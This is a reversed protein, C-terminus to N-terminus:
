HTAIGIVGTSFEDCGINGCVQVSNTSTFNPFGFFTSVFFSDDVTETGPGQINHPSNDEVDSLYNDEFGEPPSPVQAVVTMWYAGAELIPCSTIGTVVYTYEVYFNFALRGTATTSVPSTGSCQVKVQGGTPNGGAAAGQVISWTANTASPSPTNQNNVFLGSVSWDTKGKAGKYKKPINFPVYVTGDITLGFFNAVQNWLGNPNPGAPDFDGAYFLCQNVICPEETGVSLAGDQQLPITMPPRQASATLCFLVMLALCMTITFLTKRSTM